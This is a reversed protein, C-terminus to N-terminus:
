AEREAAEGGAIALVAAHEDRLASEAATLEAAAAATGDRRYADLASLYRGAIEAIPTPTIRVYPWANEGGTQQMLADARRCYQEYRADQYSMSTIMDSVADAIGRLANKM